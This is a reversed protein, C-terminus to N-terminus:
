RNNPRLLWDLLIESQDQALQKGGPILHEVARVAEVRHKSEKSKDVSVHAM